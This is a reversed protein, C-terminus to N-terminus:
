APYTQGAFATLLTRMRAEEADRFGDFCLVLRETTPWATTLDDLAIWQAGPRHMYRWVMAEFERGGFREDDVLGATMGVIKGRLEIPFMERLQDLNLHLRWTSTIVIEIEPFDQLVQALRPLYCFAQSEAAPLDDRPCVPHLVGDFDLFILVNRITM